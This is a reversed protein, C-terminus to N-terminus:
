ANRQSLHRNRLCPKFLSVRALPTQLLNNQQCPPWSSSNESNVVIFAMQANLLVKHSIIFKWNLWRTVSDVLNGASCSGVAGQERQAVPTSCSINGALSRGGPSPTIEKIPLQEDKQRISWWTSETERPRPM